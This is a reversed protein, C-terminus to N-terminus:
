DDALGLIRDLERKEWALKQLLHQRSVERVKSASTREMKAIEKEIWRINIQVNTLPHIM